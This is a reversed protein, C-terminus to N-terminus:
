FELFVCMWGGLVKWIRSIRVDLIVLAALSSFYTCGAEWSSGSKLFVCVSFKRPAELNLFYACGAECSGGSKLFVCMWGDSGGQVEGRVGQGLAWLTAYKQLFVVFPLSRPWETVMRLCEAVVGHAGWVVYKELVVCFRLNASM